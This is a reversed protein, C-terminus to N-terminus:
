RYRGLKKNKKQRYISKIFVYLITFCVGSILTARFFRSHSFEDIKNMVYLFDSREVSNKTVLPVSGIMRDGYSITVYGAEQGEYVPADLKSYTVTWTYELDSNPDIDLPLFVTLTEKPVLTVYDAETSLEVPIECIRKSPDIVDLYGFGNFAWSLLAKGTTYSYINNDDGAGGMVVCLYTLGDKQATSVLCHGAEQTSGVNIGRASPMYYKIEENKAILYNRNFLTRQESINTAPIVHKVTSSVEMIFASQYAALAIKATDAATTHMEDHHLGSPNKYVTNAAGLASAKENMMEVFGAISGGSIFALAHAADNAGRMLLGYFLNRVSIQEGNKLGIHNGTVGNLMQATITVTEDLRHSLKEEAVLATMIKVTSAPYIKHHINLEYLIQNNEINYLYASQVKEVVPDDLARVYPSPLLCALIMATLFFSM